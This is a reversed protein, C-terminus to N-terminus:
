QKIIKITQSKSGSVANLIYVGESLDTINIQGEKVGLTINKVVRGNMDMITINDIVATSNINVIDKAPNPYVLLESDKPEDLVIQIKIPKVDKNKLKTNPLDECGEIMAWFVSSSDIHTNPLMYVVNGANLTIDQNTEVSYNSMTTIIDSSEYINFSLTEPYSLAVFEKCLNEDLIPILQPLGSECKKGNLYIAEFNVYSYDFSDSNEIRALYNSNLRSYYINNDVGRQLSGHHHGTVASYVVRTMDQQIPNFLDFVVVEGGAKRGIYLLTGDSNFESSYPSYDYNALADLSYSNCLLGESNDFGRVYAYFTLLPNNWRTFAVLHSCDISAGYPLESPLEPSIRIHGWNEFNEAFNLNSIQPNDNDFGDSDLRYSYLSGGNPILVWYSQNDSHKVATVAESTFAFPLGSGNLIVENKISSVEGLPQGALPGVTGIAGLSMDVVSYAIFATSDNGAAMTFVFYQTFSGPKPLILTQQTSPNASLDTGNTMIQHQRNWITRGNTYFLLNGNADSVTAVGENTDMQSDTLAVPPSTNFTIAAKNGFYWNNNEGQSFAFCSFFLGFLLIIKKM